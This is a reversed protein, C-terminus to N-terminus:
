PRRRAIETTIEVSHAAGDFAFQAANRAPDDMAEALLALLREPTVDDQRLVRFGPLKALAEARLGQEVEQGEDFPVLLAPTGTQLLDMATNYGCMSVSAAAHRLMLRFDPRAAEIVAGQSDTKLAAIRTEADAGGVLVRWLRQRDLAAAAIAQGFLADGVGGGGASVLVEDAGARLPHADPPEPAVFGTYQLYPRLRASVPWSLELPTVSADSHVLVGDYYEAILAEAAAAKAPKSPPALIDRISAFVAPPRAMANAEALLHRFEDGLVRRGFPFLETILIDPSVRALIVSLQARRAAFVSDSALFGDRDLLQTFQTGDSRLPPLQELTIGDSLLHPVPVGGSAVTVDHGSAAFARGLTLARALHGSGLLHTVVILVKM